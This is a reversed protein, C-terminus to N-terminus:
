MKKGTKGNITWMWFWYLYLFTMDWRLPLPARPWALRALRAPEEWALFRQQSWMTRWALMQVRFDPQLINELHTQISGPLASGSLEEGPLHDAHWLATWRDIQSLLSHTTLTTKVIALLQKLFGPVHNNLIVQILVTYAGQPFKHLLVSGDGSASVICDGEVAM